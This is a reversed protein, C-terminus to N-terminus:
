ALAGGYRTEMNSPSSMNNIALKVQKVIEGTMEKPTMNAGNFNIAFQPSQVKVTTINSQNDKKPIATIKQLGSLGAAGPMWPVEFTGNGSLANNQLNRAQDISSKISGIGTVGGGTIDKKYSDDTLIKYQLREETKKEKNKKEAEVQMDKLKIMENRAELGETTELWKEVGNKYQKIIIPMVKGEFEEPKYDSLDVGPLYGQIAEMSGNKAEILAKMADEATSGYNLAAMNESLRVYGMAEEINGGTINATAMVGALMVDNQDFGTNASNNRVLSLYDFSKNKVEEDDMGPSIGRFVNEINLNQRELILGYNELKDQNELYMKTLESVALGIAPAFPAFSLTAASAASALKGLAIAAAGTVTKDVISGMTGYRDPLREKADNIKDFNAAPVYIFSQEDEIVPAEAFQKQEEVASKIIIQVGASSIESGLEQLLRDLQKRLLEM